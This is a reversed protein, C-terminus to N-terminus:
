YDGRELDRARESKGERARERERERNTEIGSPSTIAVYKESSYLMGSADCRLNM